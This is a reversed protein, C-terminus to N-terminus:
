GFRYRGGRIARSTVLDRSGYLVDAARARNRGGDTLM